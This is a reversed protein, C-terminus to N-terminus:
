TRAEWAADVVDRPADIHELLGTEELEDGFFGWCSDDGHNYGWVAGRLCQDYIRVEAQLRKTVWDKIAGNLAKVGYAQRVEEATVFIWGVQGSDWPCSFPGTSMTLGSHDYLYLPLRVFPEGDDFYDDSSCKPQEDGLLYRDHWCVMNGLNDWDRRPDMGPDDDHLIKLVPVTVAKKVMAAAEIILDMSSKIMTEDPDDVFDAVLEFESRGGEKLHKITQELNM